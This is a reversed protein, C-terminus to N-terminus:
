GIKLTIDKGDMLDTYQDFTLVYTAGKYNVSYETVGNKDVTETIASVTWYCFTIYKAAQIANFVFLFLLSLLVKKM